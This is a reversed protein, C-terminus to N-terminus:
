RVLHAFKSISIGVYKRDLRRNVYLIIPNTSFKSMASEKAIHEDRRICYNKFFYYITSRGERKDLYKDYEIM